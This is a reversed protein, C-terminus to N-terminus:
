RLSKTSPSAAGSPRGGCSGGTAKGSTGSPATRAGGGGEPPTLYFAPRRGRLVVSPHPYFTVVVSPLREARGGEVLSRILAQHGLHLGDFSGITLLSAPLSVESLDHYATM